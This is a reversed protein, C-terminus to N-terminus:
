SLKGTYSMVGGSLNYTNEIGMKNMISCARKSRNGSRCYVFYSKNKDLKKIENHFTGSDMLNINKAGKIMGQKCEGPSRVDIIVANKDQNFQHRWEDSNLSVVKSGFLFDLLGM